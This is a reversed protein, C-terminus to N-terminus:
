GAIYVLTGQPIFDFLAIAADNSIRVCGMSVPKGLQDEDNTGHIYIYRERSDVVRGEEDRGQNIGPELGDLIFVRTLVLDEETDDGSQWVQSTPVRARFVRGWPEDAGVKRAIRHWGPPTMNSDVLSGMGHLATSCPTSWQVRGEALVYLRQAALCVWIGLAEGVREHWDAKELARATPGDDNDAASPQTIVRVPVGEPAEMDIPVDAPTMYTYGEETTYQAVIEDGTPLPVRLRMDPLVAIPKPAIRIRQWGPVGPRIGLVYEAILYIPSSSWPHLWSTNGKQDPSWVEMSGTAGHRLMEHWSNTDSSTILDFALDAAGAKFLGEIVYSAIYVGCSLRKERIHEIMRDKDAGAVLGLALPVANAHLSSHSSGPADLYLGTDPDVLHAAFSQALNDARDDYAEGSLGLLRRLEAAARLGGYYFANLVTNGAELSYDYDYNDRMNGPWDVVVWKSNQQTIGALLGKENEYQAFYDFIGDFVDEVLVAALAHDGTAQYYRLAMIPYQLSYDAIEQMFSGPAVAMLAAHISGSHAFDMIVKRSLAADGTLWLHARQAVVCDGLYQGKERSPTDVIVGQTCMKISHQCIRWIDELLQNSSTFSVKDTDFPHHRVDVWVEPEEPADLIEIYRFSKYDYFAITDEEGSLVPHEEYRCNARMDYRVEGSALLEEGHRVTLVHGEEGQVRVRTHGVIVKGFDYWYRGDDKRRVEQPTYRTVQLPPTIQRVFVHDQRGTLPQQWHGDDYGPKKWGRPMRRMDIHELFQTQYGVTERTPFAELQYCRWSDDTVFHDTGGDAYEVTLALMFGSRNDASNWVRNRLGQYYVHAGLCNVGENLFGTIDAWFFPHAFHYAPAPGQFIFTGNNYLKFYNDATIALTAAVPKAPLVIEKRFLTHVNVPGVHEPPPTTARHLLDLTDVGEFVPDRLWEAGEFVDAGALLCSLVGVCVWLFKRGHM